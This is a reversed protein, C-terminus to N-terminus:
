PKVDGDDRPAVMLHENMAADADAIAKRTEATREVHAADETTNAAQLREIAVNLEALIAAREESKATLAKGVLNIVTLLLDM